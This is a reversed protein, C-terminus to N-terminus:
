KNIVSHKDQGKTTPQSFKQKRSDNYEGKIFELELICLVYLSLLKAMIKEAKEENINQIFGTAILGELACLYAATVYYLFIRICVTTKSEKSHFFSLTMHNVSCIHVRTWKHGTKIVKRDNTQM